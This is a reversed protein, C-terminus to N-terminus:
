GAARRNGGVGPAFTRRVRNVSTIRITKGWSKPLWVTPVLRKTVEGKACDGYMKTFFATNRFRGPDSDVGPPKGLPGRPYPVRFQDLISAHHLLQPFTKSEVEDSVPTDTGDRWRLVKDDHGALADPYAAVLADLAPRTKVSQALVSQALIPDAGALFMLGVVSCLTLARAKARATSSPMSFCRRM